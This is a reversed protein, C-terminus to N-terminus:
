FDRMTAIIKLLKEPFSVDFQPVPRTTVYKHLCVTQVDCHCSFRKALIYCGNRGEEEGKGETGKSTYTGPRPSRKVGPPDPRLGAALRYKTFKLNLIEGGTAVIKLLKESFSVDFQPVLQGLPKYCVQAFLHKSMVIAHFM